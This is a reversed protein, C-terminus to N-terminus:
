SSTGPKETQRPIPKRYPLIVKVTTGMGEDSLIEVRGGMLEVFGRSLTLGLGVGGYRRTASEDAQRFREFVMNIKDSPIGIGSDAVYICIHGQDVQYGMEVFGKQTFKFANDLLYNITLRLKLDDTVISTDTDPLPLAMRFEITSSANSALIKSHKKHLDRLLENINSISESATLQGSELKAVYIVSEVINLLRESNQKIYTVYRHRLDDALARNDLLDSFGIIGNMPTRIEHSMNALFSSKLRDSEEAKDRAKILEDQFAKQETIDLINCIFMILRGQDDQLSAISINGWRASKDATLIRAEFHTNNHTGKLLDLLYRDTEKRDEPPFIDCMSTNLLAIKKTGVMQCFMANAQIIMWDPNCLLMANPANNFTTRFKEESERLTQEMLKEHTIDRSIGFLGIIEGNDDRWPLKTSSVWRRKGEVTLDQEEYNILSQGQEIVQMDNMYKQKALEPLFFDFDSKGIIDSPTHGFLSALSQSVRVFRAERDKFYIADPFFNILTNFLYREYQLNQETKKLESIDTIIGTLIPTFQNENTKMMKGRTLVWKFEKIAPVLIRHELRFETKHGDLVQGFQRALEKRDSKHILEIFEDYNFLTKSTGFEMLAQFNDSFNFNKCDSDWTWLVDSSSEIFAKWQSTYTEILRSNQRIESADRYIVLVFGQGIKFIFNERWGTSQSDRYKAIPLHGPKGTSHVERIQELLGLDEVGPFMETVDKDLVEERKRNEIREFVKNVESFRISSCDGSCEYIVAAYDLQNFVEQYFRHNINFFDVIFDIDTSPQIPYDASLIKLIKSKWSNLLGVFWIGTKDSHKEPFGPTSFLVINNIGITSAHHADFIDESMIVWRYTYESQNLFNPTLVDSVLMDVPLRYPKLSDAMDLAASQKNYWILIRNIELGVNEKMKIFICFNIRFLQFAITIKTNQPLAYLLLSVFTSNKVLPQNANVTLTM